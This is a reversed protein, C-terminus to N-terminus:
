HLSIKRQTEANVFIKPYFINLGTQIVETSCWVDTLGFVVRIRGWQIGLYACINTNCPETQIFFSCCMSSLPHKWMHDTESSWTIEFQHSLMKTCIRFCCNFGSGRFHGVLLSFHLHDSFPKNTIWKIQKNHFCLLRLRRWMKSYPYLAHLKIYM